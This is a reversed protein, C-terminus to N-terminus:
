CLWTDEVKKLPLYWWCAPIKWPVTLESPPYKGDGWSVRLERLQTTVWAVMHVASGREIVQVGSWHLCWVGLLNKPSLRSSTKYKHWNLSEVLSGGMLEHISTSAWMISVNDSKRKRQFVFVCYSHLLCPHLKDLAVLCRMNRMGWLTKTM